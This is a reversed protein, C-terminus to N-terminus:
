AFLCCFKKQLLNYRSDKLLGYTDKFSREKLKQKVQVLSNSVTISM